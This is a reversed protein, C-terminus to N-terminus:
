QLSYIVSKKSSRTLESHYPKHFTESKQIPQSRWALYPKELSSYTHRYWEFLTHYAQEDLQRYDAQGNPGM